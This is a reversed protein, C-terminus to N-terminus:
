AFGLHLSNPDNQLSKKLNDEFRAFVEDITLTEEGAFIQGMLGSNIYTGINSAYDPYSSLLMKWASFTNLKKYRDLVRM